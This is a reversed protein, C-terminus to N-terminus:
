YRLRLFPTLRDALSGVSDLEGREIEDTIMMQEWPTIALDFGNRALLGYTAGWGLGSNWLQLPRWAVASHLLAASQEVVTTYVVTGLMEANPRSAVAVLIGADRVGDDHGTWEALLHLLDEADPWTSGNM